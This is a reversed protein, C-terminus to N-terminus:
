TQPSVRALLSLRQRSDRRPDFCRMVLLTFANPEDTQADEHALVAALSKTLAHM